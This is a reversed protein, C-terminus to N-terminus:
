ERGQQQIATLSLYYHKIINQNCLALDVRASVNISMTKKEIKINKKEEKEM